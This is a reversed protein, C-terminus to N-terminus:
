IIVDILTHTLWVKISSIWNKEVAWIV